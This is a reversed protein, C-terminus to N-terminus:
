QPTFIVGTYKINSVKPSMIDRQAQYTKPIDVDKIKNKNQKKDM